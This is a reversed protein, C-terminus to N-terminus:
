VCGVGGPGEAGEAPGLDRTHGPSSLRAPALPRAVPRGRGPGEWRRCCGLDGRFRHEAAGFACYVLAGCGKRAVQKRQDSHTRPRSEAHLKNIRNWTRADIEYVERLRRM